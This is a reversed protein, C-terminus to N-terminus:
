IFLSKAMRQNCKDAHIHLILGFPFFKVLQDGRQGIYDLAIGDGPVIGNQDFCTKQAHQQEVFKEALQLFIAAGTSGDHGFGDAAM